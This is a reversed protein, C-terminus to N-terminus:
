ASGGSVSRLDRKGILDEQTGDILWRIADAREVGMAMAPLFVTTAVVRGVARIFTKQADVMSVKESVRRLQKFTGTLNSLMLGVLDDEIERLTSM